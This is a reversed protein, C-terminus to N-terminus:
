TLIEAIRDGPRAIVAREGRVVIPRQMLEPHGLLLDVIPAPTQYDNPNLGLEVFRKDSTRVLEHIPQALRAIITELTDRDPPTKLYEVVVYSVSQEQLIGLATRSNSCSPNHFITVDSSANSEKPAGPV